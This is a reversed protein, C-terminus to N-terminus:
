KMSKLGGFTFSWKGKTAQRDIAIRKQRALYAFDNGIESIFKQLEILISSELDRESYVDTLGLFDFFYPGKFVMEEAPVGTIELKKLEQRILKEPKRSLATREFLMSDIKEDLTRTNWKEYISMQLYFERALKSIVTEGYGARKGKLIYKNVIFGINWNLLLAESNAAVYVRRQASEILGSVEKFHGSLSRVQSTVPKKNKSAM